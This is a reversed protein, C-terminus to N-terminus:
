QRGAADQALGIDAQEYGRKMLPSRSSSFFNPQDLKPSVFMPDLFVNSKTSASTFHSFASVDNHFLDNFVIQSQAAAADSYIGYEHNEMFINNRVVIRSPGRLSIGSYGNRMVVNNEVRTDLSKAGWIMIGSWRNGYIVNDHIQPLAIFAEIGSGENDLIWNHHISPSANECLIGDIGNTITFNSIEAGTVGNVVPGRRMGDLICKQADTGRLVVGQVLSINEFYRGPSVLVSDGFDVHTMAVTITSFDSPVRITKAPVTQFTVAGAFLLVTKLHKLM